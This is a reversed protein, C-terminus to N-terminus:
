YRYIVPIDGAVLGPERNDHAGGPTAAANYTLCTDSYGIRM